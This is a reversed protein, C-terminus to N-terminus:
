CRREACEAIEATFTELAKPAEHQFDTKGTADGGALRHNAFHKDRQARVEHLRVPDRMFEHLGAFGDVVFDHLVETAPNQIGVHGDITGLQRFDCEAWRISGLSGACRADFFEVADHM